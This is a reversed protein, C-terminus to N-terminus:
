SDEPQDPVVAREVADLRQELHETRRDIRQVMDKISRGGNPALERLAYGNEAAVAELTHLRALVGQRGPVGPRDPEGNWDELFQAWARAFPWVRRLVAGGAMVATAAAVLFEWNGAAWRLLDPM